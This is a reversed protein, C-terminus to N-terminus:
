YIFDQSNLLNKFFQSFPHYLYLFLLTLFLVSTSSIKFITPSSKFIFKFVSYFRFSSQTYYLVSCILLYIVSKLLLFYFYAILCSSDQPTPHSNCTVSYIGLKFFLFIWTNEVETWNFPKSAPGQLLLSCM